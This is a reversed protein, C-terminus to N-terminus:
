TAEQRALLESVSSVRFRDTPTRCLELYEGSGYVSPAKRPGLHFHCREHFSEYAGGAHMVDADFWIADGPQTLTVEVVESQDMRNLLLLKGCPTLTILLSGPRVGGSEHLIRQFESSSLDMHLQQVRGGAESELLSGDIVDLEESWACVEDRRESLRKAILDFVTGRVPEDFRVMRRTTTDRARCSNRILEEHTGRSARLLAVDSADLLHPLPVVVGTLGIRELAVPLQDSM